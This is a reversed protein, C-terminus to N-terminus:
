TYFSSLLLVAFIPHHSVMALYLFIHEHVGQLNSYHSVSVQYIFNTGSLIKLLSGYHGLMYIIEVDERESTGDDSCSSNNM